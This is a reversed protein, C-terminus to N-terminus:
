IASLTAIYQAAAAEGRVNAIMGRASQLLPKLSDLDAAKEIRIALPEASPGAQDILLRVAERRLKGFDGVPRSAPATHAALPVTTHMIVEIFGGAALSELMQAAQIQILKALDTDSRQGDVLILASRERPSLRNSRQRVEDVGKATKRYIVGM